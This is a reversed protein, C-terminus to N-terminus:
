HVAADAEAKAKHRYYHSKAKHVHANTKDSARRAGSHVSAKADDAGEKTKEAVAKSTDKVSDVAQAGAVSVLAAGAIAILLKRIM